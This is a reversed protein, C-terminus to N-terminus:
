PHAKLSLNTSAPRRPRQWRWVLGALALGALGFSSPEPVQGPDRGEIDISAVLAASSAPGGPLLAGQLAIAGITIDDFDVGSAGQTLLFDISVPVGGLVIVEPFDPFGQDFSQDFTQGLFTFAIALDSNAPTLTGGFADDFSISGTGIQGSFAGSTVPAVFAFTVPAASAPLLAAPLALTGIALIASAWKLRRM